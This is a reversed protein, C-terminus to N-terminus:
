CLERQRGLLAAPQDAVEGPDGAALVQGSDPKVSWGEADTDAAVRM